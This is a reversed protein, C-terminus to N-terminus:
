FIFTLPLLLFFLCHTCTHLSSVAIFSFRSSSSAESYVYVLLKSLPLRCGWLTVTVGSVGSFICEWSCDVKSELIGSPTLSLDFGCPFKDIYHCCFCSLKMPSIKPPLGRWTVIIAEKFSETTLWAIVLPMVQLCLKHVSLCFRRWAFYQTQTRMFQNWSEQYLLDKYSKCLLHM